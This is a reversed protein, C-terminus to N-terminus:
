LQNKYSEFYKHNLSKQASIRNKPNCVMLKLLLDIGNSCLEPVIQNWRVNTKYSPFSKYENLYIMDSWTKQTPTGFLKFIRKLQDNVDKGPLIAIGSNSMEAFICGASWIDIATSYMKGGYLIDPPRYWLTVVESSYAKAPLGFVRALGFDALKINYNKDLLINQPKLDRHIVNMKHCYNLGCMLQYMFQKVLDKSIPSELQDFYNKLDLTCYEFVMLLQEVNTIVNYLRVVNEHNLEHLICIERFASSPIGEDDLLNVMKVAVIKNCKIWLCKYVTGYTGEGIKTINEFNNM